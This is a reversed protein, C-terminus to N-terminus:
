SEPAGTPPPLVVFVKAGRERVEFTWRHAVPDLGTYNEIIQLASRKSIGVRQAVSDALKMKTNIGESICSTVASIVEADTKIAVAQKIPAIETDNVSQVTLLIENYSAHQDITYSYAATLAVNGRRKINEFEVVKRGDESTIQTLIYACDFDDRIDSTGTPVAKGDKGTNKNTHALAIITGGAASFQRAVKTFSSANTKDMLNTFKKLTDLVIVMGRAQDNEIMDEILKVLIGAEFKEYGEALMHFGYEDALLLKESLGKATDDVNVYYIHSPDILGKKIAEILMWLTILTKGTNPAAFIATLQGLIAIALFLVAELAHRAIEESKGRLSYRDLSNPRGGPPKVKAPVPEVVITECTEFSEMGKTMAVLTAITIPTSAASKFSNWKVRIDHTGQYTRGGSSWKDALAFGEESGGTTHYIAMLVKLWDGYECNPSIHQLLAPLRAVNESQSELLLSPLAEIEPQKPTAVNCLRLHASDIADFFASAEIFEAHEQRITVLRPPDYKYNYTGPMRLVSAIDATRSDDALFELTHTLTKLKAAYTQWKERSIFSDVIWYVHSGGGSSAIHTPLPLCAKKCFGQLASLASEETKYGKGAAAKADGCDIDMWFAYAGEVNSAQRSDPTAFEALAIYVDLGSNSLSCARSVADAVGNVPINKFRKSLKDLTGIQHILASSRWLADLLKHSNKSSPNGVPAVPASAVAPYTKETTPANTNAVSPAIDSIAGPSSTINNM